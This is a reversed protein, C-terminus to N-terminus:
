TDIEMVYMNGLDYRYPLMVDFIFGKIAFGITILVFVVAVARISITWRDKPIPNQEVLQWARAAVAILIPFLPLLHSPGAGPKGTIRLVAVFTLASAVGFWV